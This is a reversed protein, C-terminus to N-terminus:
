EDCPALADSAAIRRGRRRLLAKQKPTLHLPGGSRRYSMLNDLAGVHHHHGFFHGLEHALVSVPSSATVVVYHRQRPDNPLRWHVGRRMRGPEDVDHLADVVFVNLRQARLAAALAHRDRRSRLRAHRPELRHRSGFCFRLGTGAFLSNALVLRQKIWAGDVQGRQADLVHVDIRVDRAEDAGVVAPACLWWCVVAWAGTRLGAACRRALSRARLAAGSAVTPPM